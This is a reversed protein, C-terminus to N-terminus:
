SVKFDSYVSILAHIYNITPRKKLSVSEEM